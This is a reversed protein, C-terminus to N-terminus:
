TLLIVAERFPKLPQPVAFHEPRKRPFKTRRKKIVRPNIREPRPPLQFYAIWDLLWLWLRDYDHHAVLECLPLADHILHVTEIFSLRDPDIQAHQATRLMICRIVFYALLFAYFEQIVGLPKLSRFPRNALRQHTDMEDIAIEVEWREHYLEILELAPYDIPDLLTTILTHIEDHHPRQVDNLTYRLVRVLVPMAQLDYSKDTPKLEALFSGDALRSKVKWQRSAHARSLITGGRAVIGAILDFSALGADLLILMDSQVCRLLRRALTHEGQHYRGVVADFIIHSGLECAYVARLQPFANDGYRGSSRGFYADNAPTDAVQELTGDFAVLRRCYRFAGPTQATTMPRCIRKFLTVLPKAGIRYRAQSIGSATVMQATPNVAGLSLMQCLKGMVSAISRRPTWSMVVCIWVVWEASLKRSRMELSNTEVLIQQVLSRPIIELLLRVPPLKEQQSKRIAQSIKTNM